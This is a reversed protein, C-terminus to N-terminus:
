KEWYNYLKAEFNSHYTDNVLVVCMIAAVLSINCLAQIYATDSMRCAPVVEAEYECYAAICSNDLVPQQFVSKVSWKTSASHVYSM